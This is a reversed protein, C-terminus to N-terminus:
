RGFSEACEPKYESPAAAGDQRRSDGFHPDTKDPYRQGEAQGHQGHSVRHATNRAPMEVRGYREAEGNGPTEGIAVEHGVPHGLQDAANGARRHQPDDGGPDRAERRAAKGRVAIIRERRAAVAHQRGEDGFDHQGGEEQDDDEARGALRRRRAKSRDGDPQCQGQDM